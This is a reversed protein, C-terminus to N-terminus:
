GDCIKIKFVFIESHLGEGFIDLSEGVFECKRGGEFFIVISIGQIELREEIFFFKHDHIIGTLEGLRVEHWSDNLIELTM